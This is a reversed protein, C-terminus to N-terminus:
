HNKSSEGNRGADRCNQSRMGKPSRDNAGAATDTGHRGACRCSPLLHVQRKPRRSTPCVELISTRLDQPFHVGLFVPSFGWFKPKNIAYLGDNSLRSRHITCIAFAITSCLNALPGRWTSSIQVFATDEVLIFEAAPLQASLVPVQTNSLERELAQIRNKLTTAEHAYGDQQVRRAEENPLEDLRREFRAKEQMHTCSFWGTISMFTNM